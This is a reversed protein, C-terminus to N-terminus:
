EDRRQWGGGGGGGPEEAEGVGGLDLGVGGDGDAGDERLPDPRESPRTTRRRWRAGGGRDGGHWRLRGALWPPGIAEPMM